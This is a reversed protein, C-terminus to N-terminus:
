PACRRSSRARAAHPQVLLPPRVQDQGDTKKRLQAAQEQVRWASAALAACAACACVGCVVCCMCVAACLACCARLRPARVVSAEEARKRALEEVRAKRSVKDLKEQGGGGSARGGGGGGAGCQLEM